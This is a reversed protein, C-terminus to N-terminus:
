KPFFDSKLIGTIPLALASFFLLLTALLFRKVRKNETLLYKIANGYKREL